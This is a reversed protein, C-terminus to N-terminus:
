GERRVRLRRLWRRLPGSGVLAILVVLCALDFYSGAGAPRQGDPTAWVTAFLLDFVCLVAFVLVVLAMVGDIVSWAHAEAPEIPASGYRRRVTYWFWSTALALDLMQVAHDQTVILV